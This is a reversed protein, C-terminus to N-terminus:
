SGQLLIDVLVSAHYSDGKRPNLWHQLDKPIPTCSALQQPLLHLFQSFDTATLYPDATAQSAPASWPSQVCLTSLTLTSLKSKSNYIAHTTTHRTWNSHQASVLLTHSLLVFTHNHCFCTSKPYNIYCLPFSSGDQTWVHERISYHHRQPSAGFHMLNQHTLM